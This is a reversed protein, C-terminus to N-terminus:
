KDDADEEEASNESPAQATKKDADEELDDEKAGPSWEELGDIANDFAGALDVLDDGPKLGRLMEDNLKFEGEPMKAAKINLGIRREGSDIKVVKAEVEEGVSLVDSVNEVHEESIQSIHVLGDIGKEVEVFAGFSTIKTVKGKINQGVSYRSSIKSWPDEQAQKLGLSMRQKDVDMDLVVATVEQGEELVENPHNVRRTWSMDSVHIMGDVGEELEVFAGYPTFNRVKGTIRAGVPYTEAVVEWPNVKTQRTSLSIKEEEKNMSLVMADVVDGVSYLESARSIHKTWSMESVHVLGEVGKELEVFAGYAALNVIKGRIRSGIPYKIDVDEWPNESLQKLGLSIRERDLDINTVMVELEQGVSVVKSPHDVRGWSMDTVHLLGDAGDLDIFAGFDTINKVVGKRVQGTKIEAMLKRRAVKREEEILERRSVVINRREESIKLIRFDFEKGILQDLDRVPVVDVHSGPLFANVGNLDVILGGKVSHSVTARAVGGEEFKALLEKWKLYEDAKRKSIEIMGDENELEVLLVEVSQDKEVNEPEKFEGLSVFGESKYGIDILAEGNQIELVKGEVISGESFDKMTEAYMQEMASENEQLSTKKNQNSTEM